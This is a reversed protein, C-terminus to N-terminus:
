NLELAAIRTEEVWYGAGAKMALLTWSVRIVGVKMKLIFQEVKDCGVVLFKKDEDEDGLPAWMRDIQSTVQLRESLLVGM